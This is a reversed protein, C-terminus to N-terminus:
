DLLLELWPVSGEGPLAACIVLVSCWTEAMLTYGQSNPHLGDATYFPWNESLPTYQDALTVDKAEALAIIKPNYLTPIRSGGQGPYTSPSLTSLVVNAGRAKAKDIMIGLNAVTTQASTGSFLDNTGHMLLLWDTRQARIATDIRSVGQFSTEGGRGWNVVIATPTLERILPELRPEWGGVGRRGNGPGPSLPTGATISDGFGVVVPNARAEVMVGLCLAIIFGRRLQYLRRQRDHRQSTNCMSVWSSVVLQKM